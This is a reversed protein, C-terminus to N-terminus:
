TFNRCWISYGIGRDIQYKKITELENNSIYNRIVTFQNYNKGMLILVFLIQYFVGIILVVDKNKLIRYWTFGLASFAFIFYKEDLM